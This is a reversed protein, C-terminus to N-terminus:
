VAEVICMTRKDRNIYLFEYQELNAVIHKVLDKDVNAGIDGMKKQAAETTDNGLFIHHAQYSWMSIYAARQSAVWLGCHMSRGKTHVTRIEKKLGHAPLENELSYTEDGFIIWEGRKYCWRICQGFIVKQAAEDRDIDFSASPWLAYGSPKTVRRVYPTPPWRRVTRWKNKKVLRSVTEDRPKMVLVVAPLEPKATVELLEYGLQTKGGGSPALITVHEGVGYDWVEDIFERRGYRVVDM